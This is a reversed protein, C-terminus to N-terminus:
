KFNIRMFIKGGYQDAVNRDSEVACSHHTYTGNLGIAFIGSQYEVLNINAGLNSGLKDLDTDSERCQIFSDDGIQWELGAHVEFYNLYTLESADAKGSLLLLVFAVFILTQPVWLLGNMDGFLKKQKWHDKARKFEGLEYWSWGFLGAFIVIMLVTFIFIVEIM